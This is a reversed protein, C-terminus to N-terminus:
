DVVKFKGHMITARETSGILKLTYDYTGVLMNMNIFTVPPENTTTTAYPVTLTLIGDTTNMASPTITQPKYDATTGTLKNGTSTFTKVVVNNTNKIELRAENYDEFSFPTNDENTITITLEFSDFKRATINIKTSIDSSINTSAM